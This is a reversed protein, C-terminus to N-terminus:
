ITTFSLSFLSSESNNTESLGDKNVNSLFSM